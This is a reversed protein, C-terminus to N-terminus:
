NKNKGYNDFYEEELKKSYEFAKRKAELDNYDVITYYESEEEHEPNRIKIVSEHMAGPSYRYILDGTKNEKIEKVVEKNFFFCELVDEAHFVMQVYKKGKEPSFNWFIVSLNRPVDAWCIEGKERADVFNMKGISNVLMSSFKM